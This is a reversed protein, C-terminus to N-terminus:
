EADPVPIFQWRSKDSCLITLFRSRDPQIREAVRTMGLFAAQLEMLSSDACMRQTIALEGFTFKTGDISFTGTYNNCAALGSVRKAEEDFTITVEQDPEIRVVDQGISYSRLRWTHAYLDGRVPMDESNEMEVGKKEIVSVLTYKLSSGDAPPNEVTEVEVELKYEFGEEYEFGIIQQYFLQWDEDQSNRVQLCRMPAVGVCDALQSSIYMVQTQEQQGTCAMLLAFTMAIWYKM